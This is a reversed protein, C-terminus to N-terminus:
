ATTEALRPRSEFARYVGVVVTMLVLMQLPVLFRPNDGHDLLTQVVSAAAILGASMLWDSDKRLNRLRAIPFPLLAMLLLYAANVALCLVRGAGAWRTLWTRATSSEVRDPEWYVPAKWFNVWGLAVNRAYLDPHERILLLSAKQLERSLDYFNLGTVESLEPIAEWITNTQDAREALRADRYKLYTDRLPAYEDPLYEFFVGTHQVLNYGGMTSPALFGYSSDIFAIWGGLLIAAPAAVWATRGLRTKWSGVGGVWVFPLLWVVLPYFLIRVLGAAAAAVGALVGLAGAVWPRAEGRLRHVIFLSLIVLFGTLTETLLNAEFLFQGPILNYLGGVLAGLTPKRTIRLTWLYLLLSIGLGLAMQGFWVREPDLRMLAVFLPYGPVRTGDYGNLSGQALVAASRFYSGTDGYEIPAYVRALWLRELLAFVSLAAGWLWASRRSSDSGPSKV